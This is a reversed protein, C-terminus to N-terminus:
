SMVEMFTSSNNPKKSVNSIDKSPFRSFFFPIEKCDEISSSCSSRSLSDSSDKASEIEKSELCNVRKRLLESFLGFFMMVLFLLDLPRGGRFWEIDLIHFLFNVLVFRGPKFFFLRKFARFTFTISM